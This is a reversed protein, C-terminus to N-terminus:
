VNEESKKHRLPQNLISGKPEVDDDKRVRRAIAVNNAADVKALVLQM